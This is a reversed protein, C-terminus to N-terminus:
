PKIIPRIQIQLGQTPDKSLILFYKKKNDIHSSSSMDVGSIIVNKGVEDGTFFFGKRDLGIGYGSDKYLDIDVHKTLKVAGLLSNELTPYSSIKVSRDIEFVTYINVVKGHNFSIKGQKLCGKNFKIRM